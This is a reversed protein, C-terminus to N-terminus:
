FVSFEKLSYYLNLKKKNEPYVLGLFEVDTSWGYVTGKNSNIITAPVQIIEQLHDLVKDFGGSEEILHIYVTILRSEYFYLHINSVQLGPIISATNSLKYLDVGNDNDVYQIDNTFHKKEKGLNFPIFSFNM